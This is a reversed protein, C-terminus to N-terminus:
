TIQLASFREVQGNCMQTITVNGNSVIILSKETIYVHTECIYWAICVHNSSVFKYITHFLQHLEWFLLIWVFGRLPPDIFSLNYRFNFFGGLESYVKILVQIKSAKEEFYKLM